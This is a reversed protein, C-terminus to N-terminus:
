PWSMMRTGDAMAPSVLRRIAQGLFNRRGRVGAFEVHDGRGALLDGDGQQGHGHMRLTYFGLAKGARLHAHQGVAGKGLRANELDILFPHALSKASPL